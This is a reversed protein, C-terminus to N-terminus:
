EIRGRSLLNQRGVFWHDDLDFEQYRFRSLSDYGNLRIKYSEEGVYCRKERPFEPCGESITYGKFLVGVAIDRYSQVTITVVTTHTPSISEDLINGRHSVEGFVGDGMWNSVTLVFDYKYTTYNVVPASFTLGQIHYGGGCGSMLIIVILVVVAFLWLGVTRNRKLFGLM